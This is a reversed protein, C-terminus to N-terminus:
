TGSRAYSGNIVLRRAGVRQVLSLWSLSEIQIRRMEPERGFRAAIEELTAAHIGAPLYGTTTSIQFCRGQNYRSGANPEMRYAPRMLVKSPM